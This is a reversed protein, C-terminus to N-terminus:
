ILILLFRAWRLADAIDNEVCVDDIALLGRVLENGLIGHVVADAPSIEGRAGAGDSAREDLQRRLRDAVQARRHSM